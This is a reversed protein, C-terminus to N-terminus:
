IETHFSHDTMRRNAELSLPEAVVAKCMFPDVNIGWSMAVPGSSWGGRAGQHCGLPVAHLHWLLLFSSSFFASTPGPPPTKEKKLGKQLELPPEQFHLGSTPGSRKVRCSPSHTHSIYSFSVKHNIVPPMTCSPIKVQFKRTCTKLWIETLM